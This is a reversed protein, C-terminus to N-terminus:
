FGQQVEGEEVYFDTFDMNAISLNNEISQIARPAARFALGPEESLDVVLLPHGPERVTVDDVVMLFTHGYGEPVLAMLEEKAAGTYAPDDLLDVYALFGDDESPARVAEVVATWVADDSYDTRVILADDTLPLPQM